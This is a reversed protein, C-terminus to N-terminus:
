APEAESLEEAAFVPGERCARLPGAVGMVVCGLCVGLACSMEHDVALQLWAKRRLQARDPPAPRRGRKRGLRAVGLRGDRGRALAALRTTLDTSGAAFCQDAWAEYDPVLDTASGHHGLSGDATAVVYEVENALLSSPYVSGASPAELLLVVRRGTAVADEALSQIRPLGAADAVLLLHLSRPGVQFGRGLPGTLRTRDGVRLTAIGSGVGDRGRGLHLRILGAPRDFGSVPLAELLGGPRFSGGAPTSSGPGIAGGGLGIGAGIVHVYQGPQVATAVLPAEWTQLWRGPLVERAEILLADPQAM